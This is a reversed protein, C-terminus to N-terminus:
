NLITEYLAECRQIASAQAAWHVDDWDFEHGGDYGGSVALLRYTYKATWGENHEEEEKDVAQIIANLDELYNPVERIVRSEKNAGFLKKRELGDDCLKKQWRLTDWGCIDAIVEWKIDESLNNWEIYIKKLM